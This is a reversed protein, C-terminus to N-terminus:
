RTCDKIADCKHEFEGGGHLVDLAHALADGLAEGFAADLGDFVEEVM